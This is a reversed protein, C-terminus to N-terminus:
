RAARRAKNRRPSSDPRASVEGLGFVKQLSKELMLLQWLTRGHEALFDVIFRHSAVTVDKFV